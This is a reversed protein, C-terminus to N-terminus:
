DNAKGKNLINQCKTCKDQMFGLGKGCKCKKKKKSNFPALKKEKSKLKEIELHIGSSM